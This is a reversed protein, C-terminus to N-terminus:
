VIGTIRVGLCLPIRCASRGCSLSMLVGLLSAIWSSTVVVEPTTLVLPLLRRVSQWLM